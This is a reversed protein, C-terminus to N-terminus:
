AGQDPVAEVIGRTEGLERCPAGALDDDEVAGVVLRDWHRHTAREGALALVDDLESFDGCSSM